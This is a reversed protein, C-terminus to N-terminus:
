ADDRGMRDAAMLRRQADDFSHRVDFHGPQFDVLVRTPTETPTRNEQLGTIRARDIILNRGDRDCWYVLPM